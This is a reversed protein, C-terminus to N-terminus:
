IIMLNERHESTDEISYFGNKGFMKLLEMAVASGLGRNNFPDV